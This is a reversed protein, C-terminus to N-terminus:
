AVRYFKKVGFKISYATEIIYKIVNTFNQIATLLSPFIEYSMEWSSFFDAIILKRGRWLKNYSPQVTHFKQKV